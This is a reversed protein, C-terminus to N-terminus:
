PLVTDKTRVFRSYDITEYNGKEKGGSPPPKVRKM